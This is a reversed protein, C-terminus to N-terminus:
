LGIKFHSVMLNLTAGVKAGNMSKGVIRSAKAYFSGTASRFLNSLWQNEVTDGPTQEFLPVLAAVQQQTFTGSPDLGWGQVGLRTLLGIVGLAAAGAEEEISMLPSTSGKAMYDTYPKGELSGIEAAIGYQQSTFDNPDFPLVQFLPKDFPGGGVNREISNFGTNFQNRQVVGDGNRGTPPITWCVHDCPGIDKGLFNNNWTSASGGGVMGFGHELSHDGFFDTGTALDDSKSIGVFVIGRMVHEDTKLDDNAFELGAVTSFVKHFVEGTFSKEVRAGRRSFCLEGPMIAHNSDIEGGRYVENVMRGNGALKKRRNIDDIDPKGKLTIEGQTSIPQYRARQLATAM